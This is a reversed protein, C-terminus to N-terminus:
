LSRVECGWGCVHGGPSFILTLSGLSDHYWSEAEIETSPSSTGTLRSWFAAMSAPPDFWEFWEFLPELPSRLFCPDSVGVRVALPM